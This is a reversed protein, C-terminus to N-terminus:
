FSAQTDLMTKLSLFVFLFKSESNTLDRKDLFKSISQKNVIDFITSDELIQERIKKDNLNLFEEIPANFGIKRSNNLIFNPAIGRVSERLISKSFGNTILMDSPFKYVTEFLNRDLYPSRNEISFYMSNIDEEHLLVPITEYQIENLMRNRLNDINIDMEYFDDKFEELLYTKYIESDLYIYDRFNPSKIFLEPDNLFPNQVFGKVMSQWKSISDARATKNIQAINYLYHDYYGTFLEDAGIGSIVVKYGYSSIKEMLMWQMYSSLTLVPTRRHKTITKLDSLFDRTELDLFTHKINLENVVRKVDLAENYKDSPIDVTFAQLDIGLERKALSVLAVSDIGGSLSFALPVDSRLRLDLSTLIKEKSLKIAQKFDIDNNVELDPKWYIESEMTGDDNFHLLSREPVDIVEEFFTDTTKYLSKYGNVLFRQLQIKNPVLTKGSLQEIIKIESAYFVNRGIKFYSLPKEGFRDRCLTLRNTNEDYVAIAWMGELKDLISWGYAHLGKLLVETDSSTFFNLGKEELEKRIERYNYIEGNFTLWLGCYGMPQNGRPDLDIIALRTFLLSAYTGNKTKFTKYNRDDPGRHSLLKLSSEIRDINPENESWIGAIGCM